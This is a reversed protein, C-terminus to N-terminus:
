FWKHVGQRFNTRDLAGIINLLTSKGSGSPGMISVFEGRKVIFDVDQLAVVSTGKSDFIKTLHETKLVIDDDVDPSKVSMLTAINNSHKDGKHNLPNLVM